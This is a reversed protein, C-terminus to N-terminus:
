IPKAYRPSPCPCLWTYDCYKCFFGPKPDFSYSQIKDATELIIEEAQALQEKTRSTSVKEGTDLNYFSLMKARLNFKRLVAIAYISLQVSKKAEAQSKPTGTKYDIVEVEGGGMDDVRDIKAVVAHAGMNISFKEELYLPPKLVEKNKEYYDRLQRLGKDKFKKELGKDPFDRGRWNGSFLEEMLKWDAREGKQLSWYFGELTDHLVTGFGAEPSRRQPILNVHRYKYRLPCKEYDDLKSYSLRLKGGIKLPVEKKPEKLAAVIEDIHKASIKGLSESFVKKMKRMAEKIKEKGSEPDELAMKAIIVDRLGDSLVHAKKSFDGGDSEASLVLSVADELRERLDRITWQDEPGAAAPVPPIEAEHGATDVEVDGEAKGIEDIFCAPKVRLKNITSIFLREKARTMAVYFLRREEQIHFDGSPLSEKMLEEPFPIKETIKRSPFRGRCVNIVFVNKFELGKAAHVTMLRVADRKGEDGLADAAGPDGKMDIYLLLYDVFSRLDKEGARALYSEMFQFFKGINSAAIENAESRHLALDGFIRIRELVSRLVEEVTASASLEIHRKLFGCFSKAATRGGDSLCEVAEIDELVAFLSTENDAAYRSLNMLDMAGLSWPRRGLLMYIMVSDRSDAIAKLYAIIERIEDAEFLKTGAVVEYPIGRADLAKIIEEKHAHARYLVAFDSFSSEGPPAAEHIKKIEGAVAAAQEEEAASEIIGVKAGERNKTELKKDPIFRDPNNNEILVDSVRLIKRTSRYNRYLKVEKTKPYLEQFKVFSAFSAGRFRYISQDDDGVVCINGPTGALLRLLEIQAINVDQFEDVLIYRFRERYQQLVSKRESLLKISHNILDGFDLCGAELLAQQYGAYVRSADRSIALREEEAAREDESLRNANKELKSTESDVYARYEGPVVLENKARDIFKSLDSVISQFGQPNKFYELDLEGFLKRIIMWRDPGELQRFDGGIGIHFGWDRLMSAGLSHFTCVMMDGADGGLITGIREYMEDAAKNTYTLALINEATVKKKARLIYAVRHAIIRTKGTGAGAIVLVPGETATVAEKQAANLGELPDVLTNRIIDCTM